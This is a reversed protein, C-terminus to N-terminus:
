RKALRGSMMAQSSRSTLGKPLKVGSPGLQRIYLYVAYVDAETMANIANWPMPPKRQVEKAIQIWQEATIEQFYLRLNSAYATGGPGRFVQQSGVLRDSEKTQNGTKTFNPTHCENCGAIEVLYRGREVWRERPTANALDASHVWIPNLVSLAVLVIKSGINVTSKRTIDQHVFEAIHRKIDAGVKRLINLFIPRPPFRVPPNRDTENRLFAHM